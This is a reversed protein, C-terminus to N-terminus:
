YKIFIDLLVIPIPESINHHHILNVYLLNPYNNDHLNMALFLLRSNLSSYALIKESDKPSKASDGPQGFKSVMFRVMYPGYFDM